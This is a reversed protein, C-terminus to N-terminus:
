RVSRIVKPADHRNKKSTYRTDKGIIFIIKIMRAIISALAAAVISHLIYQGESRSVPTTDPAVPNRTNIPYIADEAELLSNELATPTIPQSFRIRIQHASIANPATIVAGNPSFFHFNGVM